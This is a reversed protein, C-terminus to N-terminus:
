YLCEWNSVPNFTFCSLKERLGGLDSFGGGHMETFDSAVFMERCRQTEEAAQLVTRWQQQTDRVTQQVELKEDAELDKQECLSLSRRKLDMM